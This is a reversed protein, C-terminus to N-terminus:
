GVVVPTLVHIAPAGALHDGAAAFTAAIHPSSMHADLDSQAAWVEVTVFTGPTTASEYLDYSRCGAELRTPPVLQELAGRVIDESGAKAPILAVVTLDSSAGSM